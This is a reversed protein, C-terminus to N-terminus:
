KTPTSETTRKERKLDDNFIDITAWGLIFDLLEGPNFGLRVGGGVAAIVELQTYFSPGATPKDQQAEIFLAPLTLIFPVIEFTPTRSDITKNRSQTKETEFHDSSALVIACDGKLDADRFIKRDSFVGADGARVGASDTYYCLGASVPGVRAKAGGGLGVTATFIDGADRMRNGM